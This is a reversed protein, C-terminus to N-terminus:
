TGMLVTNVFLVSSNLLDESYLPVENGCTGFRLYYIRAAGTDGESVSMKALYEIGSLLMFSIVRAVAIVSSVVAEACEHNCQVLWLLVPMFASIAAAASSVGGLNGSGRYTCLMQDCM